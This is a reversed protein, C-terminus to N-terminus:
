STGLNKVLTGEAADGRAARLAQRTAPHDAFDHIRIAVTNQPAGRPTAPAAAVWGALLRRVARRDM